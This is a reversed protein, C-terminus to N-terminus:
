PLITVPMGIRALSFLEAIDNDSLAICGDTWDRDIGGGHIYIEGGLRTKQPPMAKVNISAKIEEAESSSILGARVGREADESSPYSLGLSLTFKSKDNKVFVYFEGEPTRGDGEVEKDSVPVSGLVMKYSRVLKRGDFLKLTRARKHIVIRPDTLQQQAMFTGAFIVFAAAAAFVIAPKIGKLKM